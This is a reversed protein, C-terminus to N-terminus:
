LAGSCGSLPGLKGKARDLKFAFYHRGSTPGTTVEFPGLPVVVEYYEALRAPVPCQSIFLLPESVSDTIPHLLEYYSQPADTPWVFVSLNQNRLYYFLLSVEYHEEAAVSAAGADRALRGVKAGLATGVMTRRYIDANKGLAPFTLRDATADGVFLLIQVIISLVLTTALWGWLNNRVMVATALIAAPVFSPAAWNAYAGRFFSLAMVLALPPIAFCLILRDQRRGALVQPRLLVIMLIPFVIPGIVLFQSMIFEFGKLISFRFGDGTINLGVHKITVLNNAINWAINPVVMMAAISFSCWLAPERLLKRTPADTLSVAVVSLLFYVMAYKALLGAGLAVGLTVAWLASNGELLKLYAFLALTLFFLLPVDTSIIRSSFSVGISLAVVLASWFATASGYLRHSIAYALLSTGLYFIPAIARICSEGSGCVNIALGIVWPLLPPKSFYGFSPERSWLWYQAEDFFLDVVSFQLALVRAATLALLIAVCNRFSPAVSTQGGGVRAPRATEPESARHSLRPEIEPKVPAREGGTVVIRFAPIM